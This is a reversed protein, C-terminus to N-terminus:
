VIYTDHRHKRCFARLKEYNVYIFYIFLPSSTALSFFLANIAKKYDLNFIEVFSGYKHGFLNVNYLLAPLIMVRLNFLKVTRNYTTYLVLISSTLVSLNYLVLIEDMYKATFELWFISHILLPTLTAVCIINQKLYYVYFIIISVFHHAFREFMIFFTNSFLMELLYIMSNTFLYALFQKFLISTRANAQTPIFRKIKVCYLWAIFIQILWVLNCTRLIDDFQTISFEKFVQYRELTLNNKQYIGFIDFPLYKFLM